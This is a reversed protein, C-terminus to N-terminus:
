SRFLTQVLIKPIQLIKLIVFFYHSKEQERFILENVNSIHM